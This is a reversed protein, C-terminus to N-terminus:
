DGEELTGDDCLSQARTTVAVGPRATRLWHPCAIIERPHHTCRERSGLAVDRDNTSNRLDLWVHGVAGVLVRTQSLLPPPFYFVPSFPCGVEDVAEQLLVEQEALSLRRAAVVEPKLVLVLM